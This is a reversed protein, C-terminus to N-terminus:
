EDFNPFNLAQFLWGSVILENWIKSLYSPNVTEWSKLTGVVPKQFVSHCLIDISRSTLKWFRKLIWFDTQYQCFALNQLPHMKKSWGTYPNAPLLRVIHIAPAIFINRYKRTFPKMLTTCPPGRLYPVNQKQIVRASHFIKVGYRWVIYDMCDGNQESNSIKFDSM